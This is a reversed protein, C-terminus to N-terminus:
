AVFRGGRQIRSGPIIQQGQKRAQMLLPVGDNEDGM